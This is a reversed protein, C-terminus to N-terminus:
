PNWHDAPYADLGNDQSNEAIGLEPDVAVPGIGPSDNVDQGTRANLVVPGSDTIGYVEGDYATTVAPAIRNAQRDPLQWLLQGTSGDLAFAYASDADTSDSCVVTAQGDFQCTWPLPDSILEQQQRTVIQSYGTSVHFLSIVDDGSNYDEAEAVATDEGGQQINAATVTESQQWSAQGTQLSVAAIHLPAPVDHTGLDSAASMDITGIVTKGVVAQALFTASEWLLKQRVLDFALTSFGDESDGVTAVVDSGSSGAFTVAPHGVLDSPQAPLPTLFRWLRQASINMADIEVALSPPTTGHGPQEVVYGALAIPQGRSNEILTPADAGGAFADDQGVPNPVTLQPVVTGIPSGTAGNMVQVSTGTMVFVTDGALAIPPPGIQNGALDTNESAAPPLPIGKSVTFAVPATQPTIPQPQHARDAQTHKASACGSFLGCAATTLTVTLRLAGTKIKPTM